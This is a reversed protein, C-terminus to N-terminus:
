GFIGSLIQRLFGDGGGNDTVGFDGAGGPSQQSAAINGSASLGSTIIDTIADIQQQRLNGATVQSGAQSQLGAEILAAALQSGQRQGTGAINALALSPEMQATLERGPQYAASLYDLGLGGQQAQYQLATQAAAQKAASETALEQLGLQRGELGINSFLGTEDMGQRIGALTQESQRAAEQGALTRAQVASSLRAEEQAKALALQEPTGGFMSTRVGGRGQNFLRQELALRDRERSGAQTAELQEFLAQERAADPGQALMGILDQERTRSAPDLGVGGLSDQLGGLIEVTRGGTGAISFERAADQYAQAPDQAMGALGQGASTLQQRIAEQEPTLQYGVGGAPGAAASGLASTVTFPRFDTSRQLATGETKARELAQTGQREVDKINENFGYIAAAGSGLQSFTDSLFGM